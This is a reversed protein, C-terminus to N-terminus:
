RTAIIDRGNLPQVPRANMPYMKGFRALSDASIHSPKKLVFWTVGETCPPETLSGVYSYYGTNDPLLKVLDIPAPLPMEKNKDKPLNSFVPRLAPNTEPASDLLVAMIAIKGDRDKHVLHAVMDHSKGNIKEESPRHFHFSQLQYTTDAVTFASGPDVNVQITYGNDVIRAPTPRYNVLLTPFDGKRTTADPIDIPSQAQGSNCAAFAKDLDGWKAPGTTKGTYSWPGKAKEAVKRKEAAIGAIPAAAILTALAAAVTTRIGFRSM